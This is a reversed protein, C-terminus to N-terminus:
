GIERQRRNKKVVWVLYAVVGINVILLVVKGWHFHHFIEYIELPLFSSTV